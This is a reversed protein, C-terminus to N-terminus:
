CLDDGRIQATDLNDDVGCVTSGGLNSRLGILCRASLDNSDVVLGIGEVDVLVATRGVNLLSLLGDDLVASIQAQGM